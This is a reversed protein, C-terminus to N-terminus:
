RPVGLGADAMMSEIAAKADKLLVGHDERYQKIAVIKGRTEVIKLYKTPDVSGMREAAVYLLDSVTAGSAVFMMAGALQEDTMRHVIESENRLQEDAMRHVTESENHLM